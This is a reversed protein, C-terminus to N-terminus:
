EEKIGEHMKSILAMQTTLVHKINEYAAEQRPFRRRATKLMPMFFEKGEEIYSIQKKPTFVGVMTQFNHIRDGGKAISAIPCDAIQAFVEHENKKTGRFVKTMREVADAVLNGFKQRIEHDSVNYDERVDHLFVTSITEEQHMLDPLTRVYHAISIQHDFEPTVGDKRFGTHFQEAYEMAECANMFGKGLLWYRLSVRLKSSKNM